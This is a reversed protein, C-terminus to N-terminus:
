PWGDEEEEAGVAKLAARVAEPAFGRRALFAYLKRRGDPDRGRRRKVFKVAAAKALDAEATDSLMEAAVGEALKREVGRAKLRQALLFRGEARGALRWRVFDRAFKEDDLLGIERLRVVARSVAEGEFGRLLLKRALEREAHPRRELLRLAKFRVAESSAADSGPVKRVRM